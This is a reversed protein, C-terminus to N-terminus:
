AVVRTQTLLKIEEIFIVEKMYTIIAQAWEDPKDITVSVGKKISYETSLRRMDPMIVPIFEDPCKLLFYATNMRGKPGLPEIMESAIWAVAIEKNVM